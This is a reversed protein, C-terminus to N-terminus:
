PTARDPGPASRVEAPSPASWPTEPVAVVAGDVVIEDVRENFFCVLGAIDARESIPEPYSWAVDTVDGRGLKATWYVADGKFPCTSATETPVLLDMRVDARPVYFRDPLGTEHLVVADTTDVLVEGGVVVRVRGNTPETTITHGPTM